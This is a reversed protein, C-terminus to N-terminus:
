GVDAAELLLFGRENGPVSASVDIELGGNQASACGYLNNLERHQM